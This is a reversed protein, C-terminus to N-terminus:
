EGESQALFWCCARWFFDARSKIGEYHAKVLEDIQEVEKRTFFGGHDIGADAWAAREQDTMPTKVIKVPGLEKLPVAADLATTFGLAAAKKKRIEIPCESIQNTPAGVLDCVHGRLEEEKIHSGHCIRGNDCKISVKGITDSIIAPQEKAAQQAALSPQPPKAPDGKLPVTCEAPPITAPFATKEPEAKAPANKKKPEPEDGRIERRAKRIFGIIEPETLRQQVKGGTPTEENLANEAFLIAKNRVDVDKESILRYIPRTACDAFAPNSGCFKDVKEVESVIDDGLDCEQATKKIHQRCYQTRM